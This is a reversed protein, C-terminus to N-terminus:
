QTDVAGKFDRVLDAYVRNQEGAVSRATAAPDAGGQVYIHTTSALTIPGSATRGDNSAVPASLVGALVGKLRNHEEILIARRAPDKQAKIARELENWNGISTADDRDQEEPSPMVKDLYAKLADGESGGRRRISSPAASPATTTDGGRGIRGRAERGGAESPMEPFAYQIFRDILRLTAAANRAIISNKFFEGLEGLKTIVYDIARGWAGWKALQESIFGRMMAPDNMGTFDIKQWDGLIEAVIRQFQQMYPLLDSAVKNEFTDLQENILRWTNKFEVADKGWKEVDAGMEKNMALRRKYSEEANELNQKWMLFDRESVGFMEAWQAGVFHPLKRLQRIMDFFVQTQDRGKGAPAVGFMRLISQMGPNTRIVASMSEISEIAADGSIGIQEAAFRIGQLSAITSQTRRSAYYMKEMGSAFKQVMLEAGVALGAVGAAAKSALKCTDVLAAAFKRFSPQDIQFGLSALFEQIVQRDAM